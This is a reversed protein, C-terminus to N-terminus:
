LSNNTNTHQLRVNWHHFKSSFMKRRCFQEMFPFLYSSIWVCTSLCMCIHLVVIYTHTNTYHHAVLVQVACSNSNMHIFNVALCAIALLISWFAVTVALSRTGEACVLSLRQANCMFLSYCVFCVSESREILGQILMKEKQRWWVQGEDNWWCGLGMWAPESTQHPLYTGESHCTRRRLQSLSQLQSHLFFCLMNCMHM